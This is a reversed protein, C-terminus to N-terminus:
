PMAKGALELVFGPYLGLILSAAASIALPVVM